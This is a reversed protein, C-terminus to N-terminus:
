FIDSLWIEFGRLPHDIDNVSISDKVAIGICEMNNFRDPVLDVTKWTHHEVVENELVIQIADKESILDRIYGFSVSRNIFDSIEYEKDIEGNDKNIHDGFITFETDDVCIDVGIVPEHTDSNILHSETQLSVVPLPFCSDLCHWVHDPYNRNFFEQFAENDSIERICIPNSREILTIVDWFTVYDM